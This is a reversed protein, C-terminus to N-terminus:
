ARVPVIRITPPSESYTLIAKVIESAGVGTICVCLQRWTGDAENLPVEIIFHTMWVM